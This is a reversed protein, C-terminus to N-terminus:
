SVLFKTIVYPNCLVSRVLPQYDCNVIHVPSCSQAKAEYPGALTSSLEAFDSLDSNAKYEQDTRNNLVLLTLANNVKLDGWYVSPSQINKHQNM